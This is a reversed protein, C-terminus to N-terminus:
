ILSVSSPITLSAMERRIGLLNEENKQCTYSLGEFPTLDTTTLLKQNFCKINSSTKTGNKHGSNKDIKGPKFIM